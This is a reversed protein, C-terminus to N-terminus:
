EQSVRCIIPGNSQEMLFKYKEVRSQDHSTRLCSIGEGSGEGMERHGLAEWRDFGRLSAEGYAM